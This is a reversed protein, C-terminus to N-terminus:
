RNTEQNNTNPTRAQSPHSVWQRHQGALVGNAQNHALTDAWDSCPARAPCRRCLQAARDATDDTDGDFLESRGTCLAGPLRPTGRLVAVTLEIWPTAM